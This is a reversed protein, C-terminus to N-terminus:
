EDGMVRDNKSQNNVDNNIDADRARGEREEDSIRAQWALYREQEAVGGSEEDDARDIAVAREKAALDGFDSIAETDEPTEPNEVALPLAERGDSGGRDREDATAM